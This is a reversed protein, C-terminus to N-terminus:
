GFVRWRPWKAVTTAPTWIDIRGFAANAQAICAQVDEHRTVDLKVAMARSQGRNIEAALGDLLDARSRLAGGVELKGDIDTAVINAGEVALRLAIARGIGQPASAGTVIATKGALSGM